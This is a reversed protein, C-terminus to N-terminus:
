REEGELLARLRGEDLRVRLTKEQSYTVAGPAGKSKRVHKRRTWSVEAADGGRASSFHAALLAADALTRPDPAPGPDPVVVHAGQVGRAHLWLDNGRALRFTLEDNDAAGRGVLIRAGNAARFARFPVREERRARLAARPRPAPTEEIERLAAADAAAEARARGARVAELAAAMEGRRAEILPIASRYRRAKRLWRAANGAASLAPDLAIAIRAPSGDADLRSWDPVVAERAGREIKSQLPLLLEANRRGQDADRARRLDAEVAALSREAKKERARLAKVLAARRATFSGEAHRELLKAADVEPASAAPEVPTARPWPLGPRRQDPPRRSVWVIKEAAARDPDRERALLLLLAPPGSEAVLAREGNPTEFSLRTAPRASGEVWEVRAGALRAAALARRLTAQAAPAEGAPAPREAALAAEGAGADLLIVRGGRLQIVAVGADVLWLKQVPAGFCSALSGV